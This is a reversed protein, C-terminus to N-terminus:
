SVAKFLKDRDEKTKVTIFNNEDPGFCTVGELAVGNGFGIKTYIAWTDDGGANKLEISTSSDTSPPGGFYLSVYSEITAGRGATIELVQQMRESLKVKFTLQNEETVYNQRLWKLYDSNPALGLNGKYGYDWTGFATAFKVPMMPTDKNFNSQTIPLVTEGDLVKLTFRDVKMEKALSVDHTPMNCLVAPHCKNIGFDMM